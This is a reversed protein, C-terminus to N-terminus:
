SRNREEWQKEAQSKRMYVPLIESAKRLEGNQVKRRALEGISSARPMTLTKPPFIALDGLERIILERFKELADGLFIVKEKRSKLNMLLQEIAIVEEEVVKSFGQKWQYGGTYVLDRQADIIPCILAECHVLNFALGELTSVGVVPKDLAQAMAKITALGIRLGTFSGPGLSVAFVDIEKPSLECSKLVEEMMPMLKQSHTKKHNLIYEGMLKEDDLVAVTAVISSTDLALIKM